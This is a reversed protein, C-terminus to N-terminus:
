DLQDLPTTNTSSKLPFERDIAASERNFTEEDMMPRINMNQFRLLHFAEPWDLVVKESPCVMVKRSNEMTMKYVSAVKACKERFEIPFSFWYFFNNGCKFFNFNFKETLPTDPHFEQFELRKAILFEAFNSIPTVIHCENKDFADPNIRYVDYGHNNTNQFQIYHTADTVQM